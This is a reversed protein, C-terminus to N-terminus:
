VLAQHPAERKDLLISEYSLKPLKVMTLLHKCAKRPIREDEIPALFKDLDHIYSLCRMEYISSELTDKYNQQGTDPPIVEIVTLERKVKDLVVLCGSFYVIEYNAPDLVDNESDTHIPVCILELTM